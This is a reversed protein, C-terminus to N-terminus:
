EDGATLSGLRLPLLGCCSLPFLYEKWKVFLSVSAWLSWVALPPWSLFKFGARCAQGHAVARGAVRASFSSSVKQFRSHALGWLLWKEGVVENM